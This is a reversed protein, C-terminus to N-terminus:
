DQNTLWATMAARTEQVLDPLRTALRDLTGTDPCDNQISGGLAALRRAGFQAALGKLAHGAARAAPLNGTQRAADVASVPGDFGAMTATVLDKVRQHGLRTRFSDLITPDFLPPADPPPRPGPKPEDPSDSETSLRFLPPPQDEPPAPNTQETAPPPQIGTPAPHVARTVGPVHRALVAELAEWDLPKTLIACLGAQLYVARNEPLADATLGIVPPMPTLRSAIHRTAEMGDMLPMQMDMLVAAYGTPNREVAHLAEAGNDVQDVLFGQRELVTSVLMRTAATDEALLLRTQAPVRLGSLPARAPTSATVPRVVRQPDGTALTIVFRFTTGLGPASDLTISGEMAEVLRRTIALGLGTGGYRRTTANDAQVFPDFLRSQHEPAIGIGTDEVAFAMAYGGATPRCHDLRVTIHGQETFKLANGVLNFLIQRLRIPDGKVATPPTARWEVAVTLGKESASAQFLDIVTKVEAALDFDVSDLTLRGSEVKSLDLIDNLVTLLTDASQRLTCVLDRQEASLDSSALLDAMGMIATMPTRIEHSMVALFRTKAANAAEAETKAQRLAAENRRTQTVDRYFWVRGWPTGDETRLARSYRELLRGDKFAVETGDLEDEDLRAYLDMVRRSFQAPDKIRVLAAALLANADGGRFTEPPLHWLDCMRSNFSLIRRETDVVLIGDTSTEQQATLIINHRVLAARAQEQLRVQRLLSATLAAIGCAALVGLGIAWAVSQRWPALAADVSVTVATILPFGQLRREAIIRPINDVPSTEIFTLREQIVGRRNAIAPIVRGIAGEPAPLRIMITGDFHILAVSAEETELITNYAASFYAQDVFALIAGIMAGSRNRIARGLIFTMRNEVDGDRFVPSIWPGDQDHDRLQRFVAQTPPPPQASLGTWLVPAGADDLVLLDRTLPTQNRRLRLFADLDPPRASPVRDSLFAEIERLTTDITGLTQETYAKYTLAFSQAIDTGRALAMAHSQWLWYGIVALIVGLFLGGSTVLVGRTHPSPSPPPVLPSPGLTMAPGM